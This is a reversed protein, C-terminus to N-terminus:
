QRLAPNQYVLSQEYGGCEDCMMLALHAWIALFSRSRISCFSSVVMYHMCFYKVEVAIHLLTPSTNPDHCASVPTDSVAVRSVVSFIFYGHLLSVFVNDLLSIMYAVQMDGVGEPLWGLGPRSVSLMSTLLASATATHFPLLTEVACSLEVPSRFIRSSLPSQKPLQFPSRASKSATRFTTSRLFSRACSTAVAM